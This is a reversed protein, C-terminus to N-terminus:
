FRTYFCQQFWTKNFPKSAKQLELQKEKEWQVAKDLYELFKIENNTM